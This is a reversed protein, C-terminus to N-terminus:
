GRMVVALIAILPLDFVLGHWLMAVIISASRRYLWGFFIGALVISLVTVWAWGSRVLLRVILFHWTGFTLATWAAAGREAGGPVGKGQPLPRPYTTRSALLNLVTGRWFLEEIIANILVFYVGLAVFWQRQFGLHTFVAMVAQPDVIRAGFRHYFVLDVPLLVVAALGVYTWERRNPVRLAPMWLRRCRIAAPLLCVGHYLAFTLVLNRIEYIGLWVAPWPLLSLAVATMLRKTAKTEIPM